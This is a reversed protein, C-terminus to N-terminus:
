IPDYAISRGKLENSRFSFTFANGGRLATSEIESQVKELDIEKQTYKKRKREVFIYVPFALTMERLTGEAIRYSQM